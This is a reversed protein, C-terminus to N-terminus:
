LTRIFQYIEECIESADSFIYHNGPFRKMKADYKEAVRKVVYPSIILDNNRAIFFLPCFIKRENVPIKQKLVEYSVMASQKQLLQYHKRAEELPIGNLFHNSALSFSPLFPIRAIIFPIYRIQSLFSLSKMAIGMPPAPCIGVGAKITTQEAVKQVILGGMSHGVVIDDPDVLEVIKDVYDIFRTKRLNMGEKLEVATCVFGKQSFFQVFPSWEDAFGNLGHILYIM